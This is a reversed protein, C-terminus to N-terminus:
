KKLPMLEHSKSEQSSDGDDGSTSRYERSAERQIRSKTGAKSFIIALPFSSLSTLGAPM